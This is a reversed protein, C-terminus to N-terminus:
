GVGDPVFKLGMRRRRSMSTARAAETAANRVKTGHGVLRKSL